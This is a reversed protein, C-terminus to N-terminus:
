IVSYRAQVSFRVRDTINLSSSHLLHAHFLLIDGKRMEIYRVEGHRPRAFWRKSKPARVHELVGLKHSGPMVKLPGLEFPTDQLPIWATIADPLKTYHADQHWLAYERTDLPLDMRCRVNSQELTDDAKLGILQGIPPFTEIGECFDRLQPSAKVKEYFRHRIADHKQLFSTIRPNQLARVTIRDPTRM